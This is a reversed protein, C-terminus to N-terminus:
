SLLNTYINRCIDYVLCFMLFPAIQCSYGSIPEDLNRKLFIRGPDTGCIVFFKTKSENIRMGYNVCFQQLLPMKYIMNERTTALLVTDDMLALLHLWSLFGDPHCNEKLLKILDNVFLVFLLCSTSSGQRLAVTATVLATGFISKTVKYMSALPALMVSWCGIRQLIIFLMHRPVLYYAQTFDAFTVFLKRKKKRALDTLLRLTVIHEICGRGTGQLTQVLKGVTRM